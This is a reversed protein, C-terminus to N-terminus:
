GAPGPDYEVHIHTAELIVDFGDGLREALMARAQAAQGPGMHRRRMDFALGAYHRSGRSHRGDTVSTLVLPVGLERCVDQAAMMAIATEPRLGLLSVGPKLRM